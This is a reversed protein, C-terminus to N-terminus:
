VKLFTERYYKLEAISDRIDDLALHTSEKQFGGYIKPAWRLALEKLTSVDIMRYHLYEEFHPMHNIIFRRDQWISNGAIMARDKKNFYKKVFKLMHKEADATTVTSDLARTWLGSKTHQKQNWRDMLDFEDASHQVVLDPGEEITVLDSNTVIAAVELISDKEPDLGTMELDIWLILQKSPRLSEVM